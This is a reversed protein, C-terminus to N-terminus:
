CRAKPAHFGGAGTLLMPALTARAAASLTDRILGAFDKPLRSSPGGRHLDLAESEGAELLALAANSGSVRSQRCPV